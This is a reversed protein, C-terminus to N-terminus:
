KQGLIVMYLIIIYIYINYLTDTLIFVNVLDLKQPYFVMEIRDSITLNGFLTNKLHNVWHCANPGFLSM